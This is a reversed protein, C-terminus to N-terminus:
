WGLKSEKARRLREANTRIPREENPHNEAFYLKVEALWVRYAWGKRMDFPYNASIKKRMEKADLGKNEAVIEDIAEVSITRYISM